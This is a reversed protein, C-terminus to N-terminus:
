AAAPAAKQNILEWAGKLEPESKSANFATPYDCKKEAMHTEVWAYVSANAANITTISERAKGINLPASSFATKQIGELRTREKEFDANLATRTKEEDAKTIRGSELAANLVTIIYSGKLTDRERIVNALSTEATERAANIQTESEAANREAEAKATEAAAKDTAAKTADARATAADDKLSSNEALLSEIAAPLEDEKAEPKLIGAAVLLSLLKETIKMDNEPNPEHEPSESFDANISLVPAVGKINPTRWMGVSWLLNPVITNGESQECDWASSPFKHVGDIITKDGTENWAILAWLGDARVELASVEGLKVREPWQEPAFDPHGLYVPVASAIGLVRSLKRGFSDFWEKIDQAAEPTFVQVYKKDRTPFSGYPAIQVWSSAGANIASVEGPSFLIPLRPRKM